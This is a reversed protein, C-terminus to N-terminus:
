VIVLVSKRYRRAIFFAALSTLFFVILPIVIVFLGIGEGFCGDGSCPRGSAIRPGSILLETVVAALLFFAPMAVRWIIRQARIGIWFTVLSLASSVIFLAGAGPAYIWTSPDSLLSGLDANWFIFGLPLLAAVANLALILWISRKM